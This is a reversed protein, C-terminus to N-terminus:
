QTDDTDLTERLRTLAVCYEASTLQAGGAERGYTEAHADLAVLVVCAVVRSLIWFMARNGFVSLCVAVQLPLVASHEDKVTRESAGFLSATLRAVELPPVSYLDTLTQPVFADDDRTQCALTLMEEATDTPELPNGNLFALFSQWVSDSADQPRYEDHAACREAFWCRKAHSSLRSLACRAYKKKTADTADGYQVRLCLEHVRRMTVLLVAEPEGRMPVGMSNELNLVDQHEARKEFALKAPDTAPLAEVEAGLEFEAEKCQVAMCATTEVADVALMVFLYVARLVEHPFAVHAPDYVALLQYLLSVLAQPKRPTEGFYPGGKPQEEPATALLVQVPRLVRGMLEASLVKPWYAYEELISGRAFFYTVLNTDSKARWLQQVVENARFFREERQLNPPGAFVRLGTTTADRVERPPIGPTLMLLCLDTQRIEEATRMEIKSPMAPADAAEHSLPAAAALGPEEDQLASEAVFEEIEQDLMVEDFESPINECSDM